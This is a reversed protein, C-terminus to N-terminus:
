DNAYILGYENFLVERNESALDTYGVFIDEVGSAPFSGPSPIIIDGNEMSFLICLPVSFTAVVDEYAGSKFIRYTEKMLRTNPEAGCDSDQSTIFSRYTTGREIFAIGWHTATSGDVLTDSSVGALAKSQVSRLDSVVQQQAQRINQTTIYSNFSPILIGTLIAILSIVILLEILTFGSNKTKPAPGICMPTYIKAYRLKAKPYLVSM